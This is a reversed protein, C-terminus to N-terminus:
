DPPNAPSAPEQAPGAEAAERIRRVDRVYDLMLTMLEAALYAAFLVGGAFALGALPWLLAAMATLVPLAWAPLGAQEGLWGTVTGALLPEGALTAVALGLSVGLVAVAGLEGFLRTCAAICTIAPYDPPDLAAISGARRWALAAWIALMALFLIQLVIGAALADRLWHVPGASRFLLLWFLVSGALGGLVVALALTKLGAAALGQLSLDEGAVGPQRHVGDFRGRGRGALAEPRGAETAM